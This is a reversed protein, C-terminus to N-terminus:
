QLHVQAQSECVWKRQEDELFTKLRSWHGCLPLFIHAIPGAISDVFTQVRSSGLEIKTYSYTLESKSGQWDSIELIVSSRWMYKLYIGPIYEFHNLVLPLQRQAATHCKRNVRWGTAEFRQCRFITSGNECNNRWFKGYSYAGSRKGWRLSKLRHSSRYRLVSYAQFSISFLLWKLFKESASM